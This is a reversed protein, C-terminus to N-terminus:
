IERRICRSLDDSRFFIVLIFRYNVGVLKKEVSSEVKEEVREM